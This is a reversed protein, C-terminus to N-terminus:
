RRDKKNESKVYFPVKLKKLRKEFVDYNDNWTASYKYFHVCKTFLFVM